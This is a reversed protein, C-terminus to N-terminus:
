LKRQKLDVSATHGIFNEAGPLAEKQTVSHLEPGCHDSSFTAKQSQTKTFLHMRPYSFPISM